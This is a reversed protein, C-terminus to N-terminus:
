YCELIVLTEGKYSNPSVRQFHNKANSSIPVEELSTLGEELCVQKMDEKYKNNIVFSFYKPNGALSNQVVKRWWVNLWSSYEKFKVSSTQDSDYIETDYYPPCTFVADYKHDPIFDEAPNNYFYKDKMNFYKSISKNGQYTEISVDNGIYTINKAGLLRHGWGMCPDYISDINYKDIFAKIWFPSFFSYGIHIGSIKFGQLLEKNTLEEKPKFKYKERNAVLKERIKPNNWLERERRYFHPQFHEIIKNQNPNRSFDGKQKSINKFERQLITEPYALPLGQKTLLFTIWDWGKRIDSNWIELYNLCYLSAYLRKLPDSETYVKLAIQYHESDKAQKAWNEPTNLGNYPIDGHHWYGQLEIFCDTEELYFDCAFPYRPDVRFQRQVLPDIENYILNYLNDEPNSKGYSGNALKTLHSKEKVESSQSPFEVGYKELSTKKSKIKKDESQLYFDVGYKFQMKDKIKEQVESSQSPFEVGYKELSTKKSKIKGSVSSIYYEAGYREKCTNKVKNQINSSEFPYEVNYKELNTKKVKNQIDSSQFPKDVGYKQFNTQKIKSATGEHLLTTKVGYRDLNTKEIKELIEKSRSASEFGYRELNTKKIKKQINKSEFPNEVGYKKLNTKKIKELVSKKTFPSCNEKVIGNKKLAKLIYSKSIGNLEKQIDRSSKDEVIYKQYLWDYNNLKAIIAKDKQPTYKIISKKKIIRGLYSPDIGLEESIESVTKDLITYQEILWETDSLKEKVYESLNYQKVSGKTINFKKLVRALVWRSVSCELSIDKLSRKLVIYNHYLWDRDELKNCVKM